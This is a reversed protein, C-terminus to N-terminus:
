TSARVTVTAPDEHHSFEKWWKEYVQQHGVTQNFFLHGDHRSSGTYWVMVEVSRIDRWVREEWAGCFVFSGLLKVGFVSSYFDETKAFPVIVFSIM